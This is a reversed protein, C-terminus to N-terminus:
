IGVHIPFSKYNKSEKFLDLIECNVINSRDKYRKLYDEM